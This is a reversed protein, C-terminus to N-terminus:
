SRIDTPNATSCAMEPADPMGTGTRQIKRGM